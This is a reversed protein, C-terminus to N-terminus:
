QSEFAWGLARGHDEDTLSVSDVPTTIENLQFTRQACVCVCVCVCV